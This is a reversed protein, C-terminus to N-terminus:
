ECGTPVEEPVRRNEISGQRATKDDSGSALKPRCPRCVKPVDVHHQDQRTGTVLVSFLLAEIIAVSDCGTENTRGGM